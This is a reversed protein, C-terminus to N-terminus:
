MEQGTRLINRNGELWTECDDFYHGSHTSTECGDYYALSYFHNHPQLM